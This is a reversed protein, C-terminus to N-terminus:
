IQMLTKDGHKIIVTLKHWSKIYKIVYSLHGEKKTSSGELKSVIKSGVQDNFWYQINRNM